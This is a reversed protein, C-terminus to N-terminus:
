IEKVSKENKSENNLQMERILQLQNNLVREQMQLNKIMLQIVKQQDVSSYL